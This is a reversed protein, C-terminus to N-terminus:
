KMGLISLAPQYTKGEPFNQATRQLVEWDSKSIKHSGSLHEEFAAFSLPFKEQTLKGIADAYDRIEKQAHKDKRLHLFHFLNWLNLKWFYVTYYGVPNVIRALEKPVKKELLKFYTDFSATMSDWMLNIAEPNNLRTADPLFFSRDQESYRASRETRSSTRHRVLQRDVFVPIQIKFKLEAMELPTTHMPWSKLLNNLVKPIREETLEQQTCEFAAEAISRDSGMVDVLEVFGFPPIEIKM